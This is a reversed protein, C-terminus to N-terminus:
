IFLTYSAVPQAKGSELSAIRPPIVLKKGQMHWYLIRAAAARYHAEVVLPAQEHAEAAYTALQEVKRQEQQM